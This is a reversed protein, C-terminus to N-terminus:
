IGDAFACIAVRKLIRKCDNASWFFHISLLIRSHAYGNVFVLILFVVYKFQSVSNCGQNRCLSHAHASGSPPPPPLPDPGGSFWRFYLTEECYQDLDGSLGLRCKINPWSRGAM